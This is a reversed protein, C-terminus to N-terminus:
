LQRQIPHDQDSKVFGCGSRGKTSNPSVVLDSQLQACMEANLSPADNAALLVGTNGAIGTLRLNASSQQKQLRYLRTHLRHVSRYFWIGIVKLTMSMTSTTSTNNLASFPQRRPKM